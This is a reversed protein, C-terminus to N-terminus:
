GRWILRIKKEDGNSTTANAKSQASYSNKNMCEQKTLIRYEKPAFHTYSRGGSSAVGM